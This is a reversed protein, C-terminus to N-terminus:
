KIDATVHNAQTEEGTFSTLIISGQIGNAELYDKCAKLRNITLQQSSLDGVKYSSKLLVTSSGKSKIEEALKDLNAKTKATLSSSYARFNLAHDAEESAVAAGSENSDAARAPLVEGPWLKRFADGPAKEYGRMYSPVTENISTLEGNDVEVRTPVENILVITSQGTLMSACILSIFVLINPIIKM